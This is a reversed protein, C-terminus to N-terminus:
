GELEAKIRRVVQLVDDETKEGRIIGELVARVEQWAPSGEQVDLNMEAEVLAIGLNFIDATSIMRANPYQAAVEPDGEQSVICRKCNPDLRWKIDSTFFERDDKPIDPGPIAAKFNGRIFTSNLEFYLESM